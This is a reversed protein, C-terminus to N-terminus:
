WIIFFESAIRDAFLKGKDTLYIIKDKIKILDDQLMSDSKNLLYDYFTSGFNNSVHNMDCGWMTRLSLMVYENFKQEKTLVETQAPLKRSEINKIYDIICSSNWQRSYLNYSHASPGLGLYKENLWYNSNHKSVFGEKCFNSIEYHQYHNKELLEMVLKFHEATKEDAPPIVKGTHILKNLVTGPEVTLAYASIHPIDLSIAKELNKRFGTINLTPIGYIFDISINKYGAKHLLNISELAQKADHRRKLYKLDNDSFSQVGISIRNVSTIGLEKVKNADIDDPNVEITIEPNEAIKFTTYIKELIRNIDNSDLLSPTGGGMYITNIEEESGLYNKQLETEHLLANILEDKYKLSVTSYFNCYYCKSKCFPIHIYIGPM